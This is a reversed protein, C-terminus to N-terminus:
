SNGIGEKQQTLEGNQLKGRVKVDSLKSEFPIRREFLTITQLQQFYMENEDQKQLIAGDSLCM